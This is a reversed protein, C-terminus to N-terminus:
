SERPGENYYFTVQITVRPPRFDSPLPLWRSGRLAGEAARDYSVTGSSKLLRLSSLSGDREVTFEIDVHGRVGLALAQPVIWNRYIEGKWQNLWATFDAGEPDFRLGGMQRAGAGTEIGVPGGEGLRQELRQLSSAITQDSGEPGPPPGEKGPPLSGLGPPLTLGGPAPGPSPVGARGNRAVEVPPAPAASPVANPRGKPVQTLDDERRMMLPGKARESPLGTSMRDKLRAAPPEPPRAPPPPQVQQRPILQRIVEAPPLFVREARPEQRAVRPPETHKEPRAALMSLIVMHVISSVLFGQRQNLRGM